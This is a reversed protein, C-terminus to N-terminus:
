LAKPPSTKPASLLARGRDWAIHDHPVHADVAPLAILACLASSSIPRAPPGSFGLPCADPACSAVDVLLAPQDPAPQTASDPRATLARHLHVLGSSGAGFDHPILAFHLATVLQLLVVCLAVASEIPRVSHVRKTM